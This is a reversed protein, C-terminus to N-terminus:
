LRAARPHAAGAAGQGGAACLLCPANMLLSCYSLHAAGPAGQGGPLLTPMLVHPKHISRCLGLGLNHMYEWSPRAPTTCQTTLRVKLEPKFEPLKPLSWGQTIRSPDAKPTEIQPPTSAACVVCVNPSPRFMAAQTTRSPDM